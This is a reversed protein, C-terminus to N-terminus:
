GGRAQAAKEDREVVNHAAVMIAWEDPPLQLL